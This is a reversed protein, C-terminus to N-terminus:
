KIFLKTKHDIMNRPWNAVVSCLFATFFGVATGMDVAWPNLDTGLLGDLLFKIYSNPMQYGLAVRVQWHWDTCFCYGWGYWVGLVFWSFATLCLLVLNAKRTPKWIWGLLNFLVMGTHFVIFFYDLVILLSNQSM